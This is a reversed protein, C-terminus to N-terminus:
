SHRNIYKELRTIIGTFIVHGTKEFRERLLLTTDIIKELELVPVHEISTLFEIYETCEPLVTETYFFM